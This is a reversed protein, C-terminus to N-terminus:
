KKKHLIDDLAIILDAFYRLFKGHISETGLNVKLIKDPLKSSQKNGSKVGVKKLLVKSQRIFVAKKSALKTM